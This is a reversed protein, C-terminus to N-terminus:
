PRWLAILVLCFAIGLVHGIVDAQLLTFMRVSGGRAFM